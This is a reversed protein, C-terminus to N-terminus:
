PEGDVLLIRKDGERVAPLYEQAMAWDQGYGTALELLAALNRDDGDVHFIGEGGKGHLPKIIMEGGLSHMFERLSSIDRTVLTAPMLDDFLITFLKENCAIVAEPRNLVLTKRCLALIQTATVYPIDVPPDKRQFAVDVEDDLVIKREEKLQAHQGAVRQLSVECAQAVVKGDHVGLDTPQLTLVRHGRRQAELMLVFTTDAEIDLGEIPDMVFAFTLPRPSM